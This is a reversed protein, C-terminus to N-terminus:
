SRADGGPQVADHPLGAAPGVQFEVIAQEVSMHRGLYGVKEELGEARLLDRVKAHAGVVRMRVDRAALDRHLGALMDAGAVDILPSESLDCVVLRLQPTAQLRAWVVQRVHDANFYLLSSEVRFIVVGPLEENDPHRELDSFRQTGRIRGLFAVHPRAVVALLVLVSVIVAVLVGKLIGLLLVGVLAVLAIWLELRSVRWRHRLARVDILGGVAVLVIAALVVTPLNGLLETLFLLCAALALSAFVLALPTRAGAKDNVASQSLGGAVPFGQGFAVALNAAGLGLLEQRADIEEGNKAALTRAASIGEIYALLFCACSLPLIGDVDRLRLSPLKLAPLGAPLAGVTAVGAQELATLSVVVTALVVVFLATPRGPLFRDGLLLLALAALGLGLVAVNTGGLQGGLVWVREFFNDGGGKVGFLKPLQTMAITLAAGAKFGLLITNSIFNVLGSLRLLWALVSLAAVALATLSAIALWRAPDGDAMGAVTAGVLLAVASTPGVALQRSTGLAAYFLGGLLYCYIGHYPPLGALSAYAMSVPVAYAALTVGAILDAKLWRSQYGALWQAPPFLARWGAAPNVTSVAM